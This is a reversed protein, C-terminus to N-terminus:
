IPAKNMFMLGKKGAVSTMLMKKRGRVVIAGDRSFSYVCCSKRLGANRSKAEAKPMEVCSMSIRSSIVVM